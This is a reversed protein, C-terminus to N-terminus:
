KGLQVIERPFGMLFEIGNQTVQFQDGLPVFMKGSGPLSFASHVIITNNKQLLDKNSEAPIPKESYDLGCGHGVRGGM